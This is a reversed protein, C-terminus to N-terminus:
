KRAERKWKRIDFHPDPEPVPAPQGTAAGMELWAQLAGQIFRLADEYTKAHAICGNCELVSAVVDGEDDRQLIFTYNPPTGPAPTSGAHGRPGASKLDAADATGGGRGIVEGTKSYHDVVAQPVEGAPAENLPAPEPCPHFSEGNWEFWSESDVPKFLCGCVGNDYKEEYAGILVALQEPLKEVTAEREATVRAFAALRGDALTQVTRVDAKLQEVEAEAKVLRAALDITEQAYREARQEAPDNASIDQENDLEAQLREIHEVFSELLKYAAFTDQGYITGGGRRLEEEISLGGMSPVAESKGVALIQKAREIDEALTACYTM